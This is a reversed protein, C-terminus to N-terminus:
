NTDENKNETICFQWKGGDALQGGLFEVDYGYAKFLEVIADSIQLARADEPEDTITWNIKSKICEETCKWCMIGRDSFHTPCYDAKALNMCLEKQEAKTCTIHFM